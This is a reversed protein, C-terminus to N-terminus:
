DLAAQLQNFSTFRAIEHIFDSLSTNQARLRRVAPGVPDEGAAGGPEAAYAGHFAFYAQNLKRIQYGNEWLYQRRQEMYAEAEEIKGASLLEDVQVRTTHMEAQFNFMTPPPAVVPGPSPAIPAQPTTPPPLREPYYRAIVANAIEKGALSATTENMTRLEPSTDYNFGLPHWDLYNHIWEHAVVEIMWNLDDTEQVMTPYTGIGGVEEVLASVNLNKAVDDELRIRDEITMDTQLSINEDQRIVERPSVILAFPLPSSHFLVPPIPQGLATLNLDELVQSIQHQLIAEAVPARIQLDALLEDRESILPTAVEQPNSILPDSYLEILAQNTINLKNISKTYDLMFDHQISPSIVDIRALIGEELKVGVANL